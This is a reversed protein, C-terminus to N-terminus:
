VLTAYDIELLGHGEFFENSEKFCIESFFFEVYKLISSRIKTLWTNKESRYFQPTPVWARITFQCETNDRILFLSFLM